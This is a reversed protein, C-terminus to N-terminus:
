GFSFCSIAKGGIRDHFSRKGIENEGAGSVVMLPLLHEARPHCAKAHPAQSWNTLLSNRETASQSTVAENLWDDFEQSPHERGNFFEALNHYSSGSGVILVNDHRLPTLARGIAIHQAPDLNKQLSMTVVPIKAEPDIILFPVFVGHDFGRAADLHCEIGATKLLNQAELALEPSGKAPYDLQYTYPPFGYYDFLMAPETTANVSVVTEEWHATIVLVARPRAPLTEILGALYHRLKDFGHAGIPEPMDMWFCPGGGHSIYIAPQPINTM